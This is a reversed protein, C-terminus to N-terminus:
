ILCQLGFLGPDRQFNDMIIIVLRNIWSVPINIINELTFNRASSEIRHVVNKEGFLAFNGYGQASIM